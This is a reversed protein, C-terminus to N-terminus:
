FIFLKLDTEDALFFFDVLLEEGSFLKKYVLLTKINSVVLDESLLQDYNNKLFNDMVALFFYYDKGLLNIKLFNSFLDLFYPDSFFFKNKLVSKINIKENLISSLYLDRVFLENEILFSYSLYDELWDYESITCTYSDVSYRSLYNSFKILEYFIILNSLIEEEKFM